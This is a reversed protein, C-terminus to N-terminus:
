FFSRDDGGAVLYEPLLLQSERAPSPRARNELSWVSSIIRVRNKGVPLSDVPSMDRGACNSIKRTPHKGASVEDGARAWSAFPRAAAVAMWSAKTLAMSDASFDTTLM